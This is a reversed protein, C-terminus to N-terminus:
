RLHGFFFHPENCDPCLRRTRRMTLHEYEQTSGELHQKGATTTEPDATAKAVVTIARGCKCTITASVAEIAALSRNTCGCVPCVFSHAEKAEPSVAHLQVSAGCRICSRAEAAPSSSDSPM